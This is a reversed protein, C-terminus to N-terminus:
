DFYQALEPEGVAQGTHDPAGSFVLPRCVPLEAGCEGQEGTEEEWM